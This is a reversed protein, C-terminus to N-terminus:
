HSHSLAYQQIMERQAVIQERTLPVRNAGCVQGGLDEVLEDLTALLLEYVEAPDKVSELTFFLTLGTCVTAGMKPLDFTGPATMNALSFLVDGQGTKQVHRHFIHMKGYRLGCSLLAQLLEYGCYPRGAEAILNFSIIHPATDPQAVAHSASPAVPPPATKLAPPVKLGLADYHEPAADPASTQLQSLPNRGLTTTKRAPAEARHHYQNSKSKSKVKVDRRSARTDREPRFRRVIYFSVLMVGILMLVSTITM